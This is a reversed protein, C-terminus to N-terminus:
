ASTITVDQVDTAVAVGDKVIWAQVWHNGAFASHETMRDGGKVIQGRLSQREVAEVGANRVKWYVDYPAPVTCDEVTFSLSRGIPVHNGTASMPRYRGSARRTASMRGVLRFRVGPQIRVPIHHDRELSQEGPAERKEYTEIPAASATLMLEATTTAGFKDGFVERWKDVSESSPADLAARMKRAWTKLQSQLNVFGTQSLRDALNQGIRDDVWPASTLPALYDNLDEVLSVLTTAVNQYEDVGAFSHVRETLMATLVVSAVNLSSRDRLYKVLRIVRILHGNTVRSSEEIWETLAVPDQRIWENDIRHTIYTSGDPRTVFPVVDIHFDDSYDITVCRKGLTTKGEYRTSAELAKQLEITYKKPEWDPDEEMPLLVDADFDNGTYPRIITKHAFSGQPIVDDTVLDGLTSDDGLFKDLSSVRSQLTNVRTQNLNVYDRLFANFERVRATM